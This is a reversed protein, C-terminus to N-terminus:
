GSLAAGSIAIVAWQLAAGNEVAELKIFEGVNAFTIINHGASAAYLLDSAVTVVCDGGDTKFALMLTQGVFTPIALTRTAAGGTVLSCQGSALVSIAGANGPDVVSPGTYGQLNHINTGVALSDLTGEIIGTVVNGTGAGDLKVSIPNAVYHEGIYVLCYNDFCGDKVWLGADYDNIKPCRWSQLHITNEKSAADLLMGTSDCQFATVYFVSRNVNYLHFAVGTSQDSTLGLCMLEGCNVFSWGVGTTFSTFSNTINYGYCGELRVGEATCTYVSVNRWISGACTEVSGDAFIGRKSGVTNITIDELIAGTMGTLNIGGGTANNASNGYIGFNSFKTQNVVGAGTKKIAFDNVGNALQIETAVCGQGELWLRGTIPRLISSAIIFTGESLVVKGGGAPLAAIAANIQVEDATGDCVYGGTAYAYLISAASANYAAVFITPASSLGALRAAVSAYGGKPLLGLEAQIATIEAYVANPDAAVMETVGDEEPTFTKIAGPYDAM